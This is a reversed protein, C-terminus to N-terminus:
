SVACTKIGKQYRNFENRWLNSKLHLYPHPQPQPQPKLMFCWLAVVRNRIMFLARMWVPRHAFIAHFIDTVSAQPNCLPARYLDRYYATDVMRRDMLSGAPFDCEIVKM